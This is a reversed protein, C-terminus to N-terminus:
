GLSLTEARQHKQQRSMTTNYDLSKGFVNNQVKMYCDGQVYFEFHLKYSKNVNLKRGAELVIHLPKLVLVIACTKNFLLM